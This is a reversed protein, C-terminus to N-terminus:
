NHSSNGREGCEVADGQLTLAPAANGDDGGRGGPLGDGAKQQGVHVAGGDHSQELREGQHTFTMGRWADCQVAHASVWQASLWLTRTFEVTHTFTVTRQREEGGGGGRAEPTGTLLIARPLHSVPRM